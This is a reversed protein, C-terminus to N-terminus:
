AKGETPCYRWVTKYGAQAAADLPTSQRLKPGQRRRRLSYERARKRPGRM